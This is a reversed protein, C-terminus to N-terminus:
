FANTAPLAAPPQAPTPPEVVVPRRLAVALGTGRERAADPAVGAVDAVLLAGAVADGDEGALRFPERPPTGPAVGSLGAVTTNERALTPSTHGVEVIALASPRLPRTLVPCGVLIPVGVDVDVVLVDVALAPAIDERRRLTTAATPVPRGGALFPIAPSPGTPRTSATAPKPVGEVPGAPRAGPRPLGDRSTAPRDEELSPPM